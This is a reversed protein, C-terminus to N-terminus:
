ATQQKYRCASYSLRCAQKVNSGLGQGHSKGTIRGGPTSPQNVPHFHGSGAQFSSTGLAWTLLLLAM